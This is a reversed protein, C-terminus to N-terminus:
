VGHTTMLSVVDKTLHEDLSLNTNSLWWPVGYPALIEDGEKISKVSFVGYETVIANSREQTMEIYRRVSSIGRKVLHAGDQVLHGLFCADEHRFPHAVRNSFRSLARMERLASTCSDKILLSMAEPPLSISPTDKSQNADDTIRKWARQGFQSQLFPEIVNSIHFSILGMEDIEFHSPYHTLLTHEPIPGKAFLGLHSPSVKSVRVELFDIPDQDSVKTKSLFEVM